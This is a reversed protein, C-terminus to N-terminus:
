ASLKRKILGALGALGSGLLLFSSPEPTVCDEPTGLMKFTESPRPLIGDSSNWYATTGSDSEDWGVFGGDSAVANSLQLWGASVPTNLSFTELYATGGAESEPVNGLSTATGSEITTGGFPATTIEWDVSTVTDGVGDTWALFQVQDAVGCCGFPDTVANPGIMDNSVILFSEGQGTMSGTNDYVVVYGPDQSAWAAAPMLLAALFLLGSLKCKM